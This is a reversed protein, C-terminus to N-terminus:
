SATTFYTVICDVSGSTPVGGTFLIQDGDAGVGLIGSGSGRAIGSGPAIGPHSGFVGTTTPTVTQALGIRAQVNVTAANDVDILFGTVIIKTGASNAVVVTNTQATTYNARVTITNPNGGLMFPIGNRGAPPFAYQGATVETPNAGYVFSKNLPGVGLLNTGTTAQAGTVNIPVQVHNSSDLIGITLPLGALAAGIASQGQVSWGSTGGPGSTGQNATLQGLTDLALLKVNGSFQGAM